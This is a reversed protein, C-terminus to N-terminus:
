NQPGEGVFICSLCIAVTPLHYPCKAMLNNCVCHVQVWLSLLTMLRLCSITKSIVKLRLQSQTEVKYECECLNEASVFSLGPELKESFAFRLCSMSWIRNELLRYIWLNSLVAGDRAVKSVIM